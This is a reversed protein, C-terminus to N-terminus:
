DGGGAKRYIGDFATTWTAGGDASQEWVQRVSGDGAPTWTIRQLQFTGDEILQGELVMSGDRWAGELRLVMGAASVWSQHWTGTRRDYANLSEGVSGSAGRWHEHLACGDLRSTITNRGVLEGAPNRVEWDGLWFDFQRYEATACPAADAQAAVDGALPLSLATLLMAVRSPRRLTWGASPRM